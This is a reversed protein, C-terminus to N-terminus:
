SESEPGFSVSGKTADSAKSYLANDFGNGGSLPGSRRLSPLALRGGRLLMVAVAAIAVVGLTGIVIGAVAGGSLGDSGGSGSQHLAQPNNPNDNPKVTQTPNAPPNTHPPQKYTPNTRRPPLGPTDPPNTRVTPQGPPQTAPQGPQPTVASAQATGQKLTTSSEKLAKCVYYNADFCDVDNWTGDSIAAQVCDQHQGSDTDSPEGDAWNDFETETGDSWRFGDSLGKSLGLWVNATTDVGQTTMFLQSLFTMEDMSHVSALNGGSVTCAYRAEPWSRQSTTALQYCYEGQASWGQQCVGSVTTTPPPPGSLSIQCVFTYASGCSDDHWLGRGDMMVCNGDNNPEGKAWHSYRVPWTNTWQFTKKGQEAHSPSTLGIWIASANRAHQRDPIRLLGVVAAQFRNTLTALNGNDAQCTASAATWSKSVNVYKYCNSLHKIYNAKCGTNSPQLTPLSPVRKVECVYHNRNVCNMDNWNGANRPQPNIAVCDRRDSAKDSHLNEDPQGPGWHTFDVESNDHWEFYNRRKRDNFGIWVFHPLTAILSTLYRQEIYNHVSVLTASPVMQTCATIADTYNKLTNDTLGAVKYCRELIPISTFGVPCGGLVPPLTPPTPTIGGVPKKCIYSNMDQCNEDNWEGKSTSEVCSEGGYADNPENPSWSIFNVPTGDTWSYDNDDLDNLGVWFTWRSHKSMAGTLFGNEDVSHVSALDAGLSQCTRRAQYWNQRATPGDEPSLFYCYGDLFIWSDNGCAQSIQGTPPPATTSLVTGRPVSCIFNRAIYCNDDNWGNAPFAWNVCDERNDYDNPEGPLWNTYDVGHDDSWVHGQESDRDNLGIWYTEQSSNNLVRNAVYNAMNKNWVSLLDGGLTRCYDRSEMWSLRDSQTLNFPMICINRYGRWHRPCPLRSTTTPPTPPPTTFGTRPLECIYSMHTNCKYNTWLGVPRGTTMAVCTGQENGTHKESWSTFDVDYNTAWTYTKNHAGPNKLGIWYGQGGRYVLEASVFAQINRDNITALNGHRRKCDNQADTWTKTPSAIYLYCQARFGLGGATCGKRIAIDATNQLSMAKKCIFAKIGTATCKNDNWGGHNSIAVCDENNINNPEHNNWHTYTVASTDSWSFSGEQLLDNLGIWAYANFGKPFLSFVFKNEADTHVSVLSAARQGCIVRAQQWKVNNLGSFQYCQGSFGRWGRGCGWTKGSPVHAPSTVAPTPKPTVKGMKECIYGYRDTCKFDSWQGNAKSIGVCDSNGQNNPEGPRWNLFGFPSNDAWRWGTESQRDNAGVWFYNSNLRALRGNIYFQEALSSIGVLDGHNAQCATRADLWSLRETNFMYCSFSNPDNEWMPGCNTSWPKQTTTTAPQNSRTAEIQCIYHYKSSCAADYWQYNSTDFIVVCNENGAYNNPEGQYWNYFTAKINSDLWEFLNERNRDHLGIWYKGRHTRIQAKIFNNFATNKISVLDAGKTKCSARAQDWTMDHSNMQVCTHDTPYLTYGHPCSYTVPPPTPKRLGKNVPLQCLFKHPTGCNSTVHWQLNHDNYAVTVCDQKGRTNTVNHRPWNNWSGLNKNGAVWTWPGADKNNDTLGIWLTTRTNHIYPYLFKTVDASDIAGLSAGLGSCYAKAQNFSKAARNYILYCRNTIQLWGNPCSGEPKQCLFQRRSSCPISNWSNNAHQGMIQEVCTKNVNGGLSRPPNKTWYTPHSLASGNDWKWIYTNGQQQSMLSVWLNQGKTRAQDWMITQTAIDFVQPLRGGGRRCTLKAGAFNLLRNYFKYCM